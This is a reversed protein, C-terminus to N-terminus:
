ESVIGHSTQAAYSAAAVLTGIVLGFLIHAFAVDLFQKTRTRM